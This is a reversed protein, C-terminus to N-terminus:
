HHRRCQCRPNRHPRPHHTIFTNHVLRLILRQPSRKLTHAAELSAEFHMCGPPTRLEVFSRLKQVHYPSGDVGLFPLLLICTM